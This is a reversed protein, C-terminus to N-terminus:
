MTAIVLSFSFFVLQNSYRFEHVPKVSNKVEDSTHLITEHIEVEGTNTPIVRDTVVAAAAM